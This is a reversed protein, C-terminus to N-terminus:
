PRDRRLPLRTSLIFGSGNATGATMEGGYIKVRERIGVLGHGLGDSRSNGKGNDRVEIQLEDPDYRVTVNARSARAHKLANTLGEQVIRYASLDIGRPLPFPEGDVHLEVPLGARGLETVLSDLRDLGPQPLLEAEEGDRRMAGLLGRMEALATRGSREVSRLADRDDALADPLKHRVAGVQLVMMSVAHAVIDHLERAIRVREEAVAIRASADREQEALTARVEAAEAQEARERLAFGAIWGVAFELPIFVLMAVTHGPIEYVVTASGGVALALGLGSQVPSRLNGLLFAVALGVVFISIAFPILRWDVFSIGAALPWHAAPAFPWRRRAFTPLVLIAIAPLAFWMTVHPADPSNRGVVVELMATIALVGLLLDFWYKRPVYRIRSVRQLYQM